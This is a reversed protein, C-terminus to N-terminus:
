ATGEYPSAHLEADIVTSSDHTVPVFDPGTQIALGFDVEANQIGRDVVVRVYREQPEVVEIAVIGNDDDDAISISTGELDAADSLADDHGTQIKVSTAADAVITGFGVIFTISKFGKTDIISSEVDSTGAATRDIVRTFRGQKTLNM